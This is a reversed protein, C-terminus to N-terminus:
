PTRERSRIIEGREIPNGFEDFIRQPQYGDWVDQWWNRIGYRIQLQWYSETSNNYHEHEWMCPPVHLVDGAEWPEEKGEMESMGKGQWAYVMAELHKHRGSHTGAPEEWIAPMAVTKARFGNQPQVLYKIRHHQNRSADVANHGPFEEDEPAEELHIIARSGDRYNQSEMVPFRSLTNGDTPGCNALQEVKALNFFKELSFCMGSLYLAPVDGTNFHQHDARYPIQLTSGKHWDFRLGDIISFGEGELIHMSEEGHAHRGTHWGVPIEAKLVDSGMTAFGIANCVMLKVKADQRTEIWPIDRDRAVHPARRFKEEIERDAALWEDYFNAMM